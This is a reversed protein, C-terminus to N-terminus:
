VAAAAVAETSLVPGILAAGAQGPRYGFAGAGLPTDVVQPCLCSFSIGEDHHTVALWETLGVVAHKTTTYPLSGM